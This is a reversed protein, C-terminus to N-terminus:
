RSSLGERRERRKREAAGERKAAGKCEGCYRERGDGGPLPGGCRWCLTPDNGRPALREDAKPVRKRSRGSSGGGTTGPKREPIHWGADPDDAPDYVDTAEIVPRDDFADFLTHPDVGVRAMTHGYPCRYGDRWPETTEVPQMEVGYVGRERICQPCHPPLYGSVPPAEEMLQVTM